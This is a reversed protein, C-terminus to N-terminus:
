DKVFRMSFDTASLNKTIDGVSVYDVGTEAIDRITDLTVNGSAELEIRGKFHSVAQRLGPLTFNDLLARHAGAASAEHLQDLTEVEVELLLDPYRIRATQVAEGISGVAAIHNEKVLIADWLGVRHNWGGACRVAYKQAQRLGPLTKRTDLVRCGTGEIADVYRRTRSATGSLTQIFNLATREGTLMPRAPGNLRCIPEDPELMDGDDVFWEIDIDDSLLAFTQDFWQRGCFVAHERCIVQAALTNDRPILAATADLGGLDEDIARRVEDRIIAASVRAVPETM